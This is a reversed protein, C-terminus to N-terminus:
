CFDALKYCLDTLKYYIYTYLYIKLPIASTLTGVFGYTGSNEQIVNLSWCM